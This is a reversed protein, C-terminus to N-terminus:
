VFIYTNELYEVANRLRLYRASELLLRLLILSPIKLPRVLRIESSRSSLGISYMLGVANSLRLLSLYKDTFVFLGFATPKLEFRRQINLASRVFRCSTSTLKLVLLSILLVHRKFVNSLVIRKILSFRILALLTALWISKFALLLM